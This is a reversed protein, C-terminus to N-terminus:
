RKQPYIKAMCKEFNGRIAKSNRLADLYGGSDVVSSIIDNSLRGLRVHLRHTCPCDWPSDNRVTTGSPLKELFIAPHHYDAYIKWTIKRQPNAFVGGAIGHHATPNRLAKYLWTVNDASYCLPSLFKSRYNERRQRALEGRNGMDTSGGYLNALFELTGCCLLLGPFYAHTNGPRDESERATLCIRIDKYFGRLRDNLFRPAYIEIDGGSGKYLQRQWRGKRLKKHM